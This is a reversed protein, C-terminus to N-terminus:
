FQCHVVQMTCHVITVVSFTGCVVPMGRAILTGYLTCTPKLWGSYVRDTTHVSFVFHFCKEFTAFALWKVDEVQQCNCIDLAGGQWWMMYMNHVACCTCLMYMNHVACCTCATYLQATCLMYMSHVACCTCLMYMNYVACSYVVHVHQTCCLQVCCTCTTYLVVHVHYKSTCIYIMYMNHVACCTCSIKFSVKSHDVSVGQLM